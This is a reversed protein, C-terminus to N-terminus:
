LGTARAILRDFVRDPLVTRVRAMVKADIGVLYRTRPRRATLAKLITEAVREPPIGRADTARAVEEYRDFAQGYLEEHQASFRAREANAGAVGKTWIPTAVAGPEVAVVEVGFRRVEQRLSDAIAEIGFKAAHYAGMYPTAVRGGISSIFVVRGGAARLSPLLAQTLAVQGTLNVELQRRFSDIPLAEL